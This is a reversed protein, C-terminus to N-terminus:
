WGRHPAEAAEILMGAREFLAAAGIGARGRALGSTGGDALL